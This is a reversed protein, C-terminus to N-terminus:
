HAHTSFGPMPLSPNVRYQAPLFCPRSPCDVGFMLFSPKGKASEHPSNGYAWLIGPVVPGSCGLSPLMIRSCQRRPTSSQSGWCAMCMRCLNYANVLHFTPLASSSGTSTTTSSILHNFKYLSSQKKFRTVRSFSKDPPDDFAPHERPHIMDGLVLSNMVQTAPKLIM